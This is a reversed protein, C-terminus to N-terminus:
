RTACALALKGCWLYLPKNTYFPLQHAFADLDSRLTRRYESGSELAARAEPPALAATSAYAADHRDALPAASRQMLVAYFIGDLNWSPQQAAHWAAISVFATSVLVCM